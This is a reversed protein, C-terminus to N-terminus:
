RGQKEKEEERGQGGGQLQLQPVVQSLGPLTDAFSTFSLLRSVGPHGGSACLSVVEGAM